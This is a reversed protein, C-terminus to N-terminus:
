LSIIKIINEIDIKKNPFYENFFSDIMDYDAYRGSNTYFCIKKGNIEDIRFSLYVPMELGFINGIKYTNLNKWKVLKNNNFLNTRENNNAEVFYLVKELQNKLDCSDLSNLTYELKQKKNNEM